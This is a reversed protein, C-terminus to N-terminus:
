CVSWSFLYPPNAIFLSVQHLHQIVAVLKYLQKQQRDWLINHLLCNLHWEWAHSPTILLHTLKRRLRDNVFMSFCAFQWRLMPDNGFFVNPVKPEFWLKEQPQLAGQATTTPELTQVKSKNGRSFTGVDNRSLQFFWSAEIQSAVM